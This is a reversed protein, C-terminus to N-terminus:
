CSYLLELVVKSFTIIDHEFTIGNGSVLGGTVNVRGAAQQEENDIQLKVFDPISGM